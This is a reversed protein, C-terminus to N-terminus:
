VQINGQIQLQMQNPPREICTIQVGFTTHIHDIISTILVTRLLPDDAFNPTYTGIGDQPPGDITIISMDRFVTIAAAIIDSINM